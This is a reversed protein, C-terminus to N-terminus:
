FKGQSEKFFQCQPSKRKHEVLPDDGRQWYDFEKSCFICRVRDEKGVYYLGAKAMQNPTIFDLKWEESFTRLRNEYTTLDWTPVESSMTAPDPPSGSVFETLPYTTNLIIPCGNAMHIVNKELKAINRLPHTVPKHNPSPPM